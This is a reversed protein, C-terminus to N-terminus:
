YEIRSVSRLWLVGIVLLVIAAIIVPIGLPSSLGTRIYNPSVVFMGGAVVFPLCALIIASLRGEATLASVQRYLADRDRVSRAVSDLVEALNGGVERQIAVASVVWRFMDSDLRNAMSAMATEVPVGLRAEIQVRRFEDSAPKAGETVVLDIAQQLGWGTRLGGSLLNLVDPLQTEFERTRKKGRSSLVALPIISALVVIALSVWLRSFLLQGVFGAFAVFAIHAAIYEAPRLPLGARELESHIAQTFGGKSAVAGVADVLKSTIGGGEDAAAPNATDGQLQDYYRMQDLSKTRSSRLSMLAAALLGVSAFALAVAGILLLPNSTPVTLVRGGMPVRGVYLPNDMTTSAKASGATTRATVDVDINKTTPRQSRYTVRYVSSIERAFTGLHDTLKASDAVSLLRGGSRTTVLKLSQQDFEPSKLAVALVPMNKAQVAKVAQDLTGTSATDGGDSLLVVTAPSGDTTQKLHTASVIADYVATEGSASLSDIAGGLAAADTSYDLVVRPSSSFEIIAIEAKGSLDSVFRHAAAKANALPAGKMSGSTDILLAARVVRDESRGAVQLVDVKEGNELVTFTPKGGTDTIISDPLGVELVTKPFNETNVGYLTLTNESVANAVLPLCLTLAVVALVIWTSRSGERRTDM